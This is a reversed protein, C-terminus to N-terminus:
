GVQEWWEERPGGLMCTWGHQDVTCRHAAAHSPGGPELLSIGM